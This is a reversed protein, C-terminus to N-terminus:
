FEGYIIPLQQVGQWEFDGYGTEDVRRYAGCRVCTEEKYIETVDEGVQNPTDYSVMEFETNAHNCWGDVNVSVLESSNVIITKIKQM